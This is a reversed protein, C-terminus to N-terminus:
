VDHMTQFRETREIYSILYRLGKPTCLERRVFPVDAQMLFRIREFAPCNAVYHDTTEVDEHCCRCIDSDSKGIKHRFARFDGHGSIVQIVNRLEERRLTLLMRSFRQSPGALAEKTLRCTNLKNWYEVHRNRTWLRSVTRYFSAAPPVFPEAGAEKVKAGLKAAVDARENGDVGKHGPVWVINVSNDNGLDDLSRRCELVLVNTIM